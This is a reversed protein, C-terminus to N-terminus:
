IKQSNIYTDSLTYVTKTTGADLRAEDGNMLLFLPCIFVSLVISLVMKDDPQSSMTGSLPIYTGDIAITHFDSVTLEGSTGIKGRDKKFSITATAPSGSKIITEGNESKVDNAVIFRVESGTIVDRTTITEASKIIIPTNARLVTKNATNSTLKMGPYVMKANIKKTTKLFNYLSDQNVPEQTIGPMYIGFFALVLLLSIVKKM